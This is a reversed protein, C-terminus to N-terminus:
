KIEDATETEFVYQLAIEVNQLSLIPMTEQPGFVEAEIYKSDKLFYREVFMEEPDALVYERVGFSEYLNKKEKKDKIATAPSLIEIILDPAGHIKDKIKTKDCVVIVDPQVFNTDDFYVDLPAIFVRCSHGKLASKLLAFFNGAIDQHKLTPSQSMDYVKGNIVEWREADPWKLYDQWSYKKNLEKKAPYGM